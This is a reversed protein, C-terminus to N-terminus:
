LVFGLLNLVKQPCEDLQSLKQSVGNILAKREELGTIHLVCKDLRCVELMLMRASICFCIGSCNMMKRDSKVASTWLREGSAYGRILRRGPSAPTIRCRWHWGATLSRRFAFHAVKQANPQWRPFSIIKNVLTFYRTVEQRCLHGRQAESAAAPPPRRAPKNVRLQADWSWNMISKSRRKNSDNQAM